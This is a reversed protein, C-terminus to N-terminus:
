GAFVNAALAPCTTRDGAGDSSPYGACADAACHGACGNSPSQLWDAIEQRDISSDADSESKLLSQATARRLSDSIWPSRPCVGVHGHVPHRYHGMDRTTWRIGLLNEERRGTPM